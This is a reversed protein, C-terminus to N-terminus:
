PRRIYIKFGQLLELVVQPTLSISRMQAVSRVVCIICKGAGQESLFSTRKTGPVAIPEGSKCQPFFLFLFFFNPPISWPNSYGHRKRHTQTPTPASRRQPRPAAIFIAVCRPPPRTHASLRRRRTSASTQSLNIGPTDCREKEEGKWKRKRSIHTIEFPTGTLTNLRWDGGGM